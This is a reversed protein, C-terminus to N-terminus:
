VLEVEEHDEGEQLAGDGGQGGKEKVFNDYDEAYYHRRLSDDLVEMESQVIEEGLRVSELVPYVTSQETIPEMILPPPPPQEFDDVGSGIHVRDHEQLHPLESITVLAQGVGKGQCLKMVEALHNTFVERIEEKGEGHDDKMAVPVFPVKLKEGDGEVSYPTRMAQMGKTLLTGVTSMVYSGLLENDLEDKNEISDM